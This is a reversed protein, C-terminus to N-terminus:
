SEAEDMAAVAAAFRRATDSTPVLEAATALRRLIEAAQEDQNRTRHLRAQGLADQAFKGAYALAEDLKKNPGAM